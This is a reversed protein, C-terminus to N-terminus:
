EAKFTQVGREGGKEIHDLLAFLWRTLQIAGAVGVITLVTM